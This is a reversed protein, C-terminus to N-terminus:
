YQILGLKTAISKKINEDKFTFLFFFKSPVSQSMSIEDESLSQQQGSSRPHENSMSQDPSFLEEDSAM